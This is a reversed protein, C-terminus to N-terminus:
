IHHSLKVIMICTVLLTSLNKESFSIENSVLVKQVDVDKLFIPSWNWYVWVNGNKCVIIFKWAKYHEAKKPWIPM